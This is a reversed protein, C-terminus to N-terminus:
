PSVPEQKRKKLKKNCTREAHGRKGCKRCVLTREFPTPSTPFKSTDHELRQGAMFAAASSQVSSSTSADELDKELASAHGVSKKSSYRGSLRDEYARLADRLEEASKDDPSVMLSDIVPQYKPHASLLLQMSLLDEIKTKQNLVRQFVAALRAFYATISEEEVQQMAMFRQVGRFKNQKSPKNHFAEIADWLGLGDHLTVAPITSELGAKRFSLFIGSYLNHNRMRWNTISKNRKARKKDEAADESRPLATPCDTRSEVHQCMDFPLISKFSLKFQEFEDPTYIPVLDLWKTSSLDGM